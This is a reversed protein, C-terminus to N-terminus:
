GYALGFLLTMSLGLWGMWEVHTQFLIIGLGVTLAQKVNGAVTITLASTEKNVAFGTWNLIFALSGNILLQLTNDKVVGTVMKGEGAGLLGVTLCICAAVPATLMLLQLPSFRSRQLFVSALVGKFASVVAGLVTIVIPIVKLKSSPDSGREEGLVSLVIGAVIGSLVAIMMWGYGGGQKRGLIVWELALTILPTGSRIIQHLSLSIMQLSVNSLAINLACVVAFANM